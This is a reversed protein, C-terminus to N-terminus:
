IVERPFLGIILCPVLSVIVVLLLSQKAYIEAKKINGKGINRGVLACAGSNFGLPISFMISLLNLIIVQGANENVGIFNALIVMLTFIIMDMFTMLATPIGLRLYSGIKKFTALDFRVLCKRTAEKYCIAAALLIFNLFFTLNTALGM